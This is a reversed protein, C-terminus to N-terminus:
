QMMTKVTSDIFAQDIRTPLATPRPDTCSITRAVQYILQSYYEGNHNDHVITNDISLRYPIAYEGGEVSPYPGATVRLLPQETEFAVLLAAQRMLDQSINRTGHVFDVGFRVLEGNLQAPERYFKSDTSGDFGAGEFHNLIQQVEKQVPGDTWSVDISSGMSYSKSRVSFRITPFAQKLAKRVETATETTTLQKV